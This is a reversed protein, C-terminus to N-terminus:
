SAMSLVSEGFNGGVAELTLVKDVDKPVAIAHQATSPQVRIQMDVVPNVSLFLFDLPLM